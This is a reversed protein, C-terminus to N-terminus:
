LQGVVAADQLASQGATGVVAAGAVVVDVVVRAVVAGYYSLGM